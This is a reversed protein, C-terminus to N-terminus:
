AGRNKGGFPQVQAKRARDADHRFRKGALLRAALAARETVARYFVGRLRGIASIGRRGDASTQLQRM